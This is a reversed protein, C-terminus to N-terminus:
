GRESTTVHREAEVEAALDELQEAARAALLRGQEVANFGSRLAAKAMPRALHRLPVFFDRGITAAGIGLAIGLLLLRGQGDAVSM